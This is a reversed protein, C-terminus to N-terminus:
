ARRGSARGASGVGVDVGLGPGVSAELLDVLGVLDQGIRLAALRVVHEPLGPQATVGLAEAAAGAEAVEAVDEVGEEAAGLAAGPAAVGRGADVKAVVQPDGELFSNAADLLLDLEGTRSRQSVQEPLPALGPECGTAQSLQPPRPSSRVVRRVISPWITLTDAQGFHLPSPLSM